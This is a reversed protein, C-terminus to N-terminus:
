NKESSIKDIRYAYVFVEYDVNKEAYDSVRLGEPTDRYDYYIKIVDGIDYRFFGSQEGNKDFYMTIVEGECSSLMHTIECVRFSIDSLIKGNKDCLNFTRTRFNAGSTIKAYFSEYMNAYTEDRNTIKTNPLAIKLEEIIEDGNSLHPLVRSLDLVKLNKLEKIVSLNKEYAFCDSVILTSLSKMETLASLDEVSVYGLDLTKLNELDKLIDLNNFSGDYFELKTLEKLSSLKSIQKANNIYAAEDFRLEKTNVSLSPITPFDNLILCEPSEKVAEVTRVGAKGKTLQGVVSIEYDSIESDAKILGNYHLRGEKEIMIRGQKILMQAGSNLQLMGSIKTYRLSDQYQTLPHNIIIVSGKQAILKGGQQIDLLGNVEFTVGSKVFLVSGNTITLKNSQVLVTSVDVIAKGNVTYEYYQDSLVGSTYEAEEPAIVDANSNFSFISVMVLISILLMIFRKIM